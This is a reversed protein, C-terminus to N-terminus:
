LQDAKAYADVISKLFAAKEDASIDWESIWKEVSEKTLQLIEIDDHATATALLSQYVLLRLPSKRPITNFLNSFSFPNKKSNLYILFILVFMRYRVSLRESSSSLVKLLSIIYQKLEPSSPSYLAFLHAFLLNFFGEVETANILM